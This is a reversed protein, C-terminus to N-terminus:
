KQTPRGNNLVFNIERKAKDLIKNCNECIRVIYGTSHGIAWQQEMWESKRKHSCTRQLKKVKADYERRLADYESKM